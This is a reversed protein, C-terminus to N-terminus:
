RFRFGLDNPGEVLTIQGDSMPHNSATTALDFPPHFDFGRSTVTLWPGRCSMLCFSTVKVEPPLTDARGIWM